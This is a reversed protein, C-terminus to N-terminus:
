HLNKNNVIQPSLPPCSTIIMIFSSNGKIMLFLLRLSAIPIILPLVDCRCGAWRPWVQTYLLYHLTELSQCLQFTSLSVCKGINFAHLQESGAGLVVYVSQPGPGSLLVHISRPKCHPALPQSTATIATCHSQFM